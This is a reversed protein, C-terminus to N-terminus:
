NPRRGYHWNSLRRWQRRRRVNLRNVSLYSSFLGAIRAWSLELEKTPVRVLFSPSTPAFLSFTSRLGRCVAGPQASRRTRYYFGRWCLTPKGDLLLCCLISPECASRLIFFLEARRASLNIPYALCPIQTPRICILRSCSVRLTFPALGRQSAVRRTILATRSRLRKSCSRPECQRQLVRACCTYARGINRWLM